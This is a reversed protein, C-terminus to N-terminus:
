VLKLLWVFGAGTYHLKFGAQQMADMVIERTTDAFASIQEILETTTLMEDADAPSGAPHYRSCLAEILKNTYEPNTTKIKLEM